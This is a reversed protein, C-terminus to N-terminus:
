NKASLRSIAFQAMENTLVDNELDKLASICNESGMWSLERCLYNKADATAQEDNLLQIIKDEIKALERPNDSYNKIRESILNLYKVSEGVKYKSANRFLDNITFAKYNPLILPTVSNPMDEPLAQTVEGTAAWETGRLLTYVFFASKFAVTNSDKGVHGFVNHFVRGKGYNITFLVPEHYGTGGTKKPSFATALVEMNEAPGRLKAYLEDYAHMCKAPIGKMIPHEPMRNDVVFQDKKGHMGGKGPSNDRVIEGNQWRVYPGDKENRKGWGGLGIIKNYEEWEPFSNDAAHIVVVGGGSSVFKEFNSQTEQPWNDGNYDLLVVDYLTFDPKFGSMDEGKNPTIAVDVTFLESTELTKQLAVHSAKWNHNNQGTIILVNQQKKGCSALSVVLVLFALQIITKISQIM